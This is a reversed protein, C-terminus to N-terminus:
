LDSMAKEPHAEKYRHFQALLEHHLSPIRNMYEVMERIEDSYVTRAEDQEDAAAPRYHMDGRNLILWDLSINYRRAINIFTNLKPAYLGGENRYYTTSTVGLERAMDQGRLGLMRRIEKLNRGYQVARESIKKSM